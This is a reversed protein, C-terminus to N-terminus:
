HVKRCSATVEVSEHEDKHMDCGVGPGMRQAEGVGPGMSRIEQSQGATKNDSQNSM